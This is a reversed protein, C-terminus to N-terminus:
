SSARGDGTAGRDLTSENSLTTGSVDAHRLVGVFKRTATTHNRFPDSFGDYVVYLDSGGPSIGLFAFDPRDGSQEVAHPATWSVGRSSSLQVLAHEHNLGASGDSWGLALTNPAGTGSPAGNAISLSPFSSTRAGAIGDFSFSRVGDFQGVDTVDAVARAKDFSRGGDSSRRLEFVSHKHVADEWTVYVTGH